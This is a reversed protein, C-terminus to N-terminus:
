LWNVRLYFGILALFHATLALMRATAKTGQQLKTKCTGELGTLECLKHM